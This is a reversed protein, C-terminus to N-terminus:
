TSKSTRPWFRQQSRMTQGLINFESDLMTVDLAVPDSRWGAAAKFTLQPASQRRAAVLAVADVHLLRRVERM